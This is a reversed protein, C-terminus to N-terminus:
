GNKRWQFYNLLSNSIDESSQPASFKEKKVADFAMWESLERSDMRELLEGVTMGLREALV